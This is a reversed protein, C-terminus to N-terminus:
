LEALCFADAQEKERHEEIAPLAYKPHGKEVAVKRTRGPLSYDSLNKTHLHQEHWLAYQDMTCHQRNSLMQRHSASHLHYAAQPQLTLIFMEATAGSGYSYCLINQEERAETIDSNDLLSCLSVFLAATYSNGILRPYHLAQQVRKSSLQPLKLHQCAKETLRPLPTHCCVAAVQDCSMGMQGWLKDLLKLYLTCSYKGDVIPESHGVPRYFDKADTTIFCSQPQLIFIAPNARVVFAVAAAGQSSEAPTGRQYRAVDAAIVLSCRSQGSQIFSAATRLAFAGSYCAQKLEISRCNESLGLLEHAIIAAAKAHDNASETAWLLLDVEQLLEPQALILRLAADVGLSLHDEAPTPVSMVQQGLGRHYKGPDIGQFHALEALPLAFATTSMSIKDIGLRM